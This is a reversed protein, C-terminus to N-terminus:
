ASTYNNETTLMDSSVTSSRPLPYESDAPPDILQRGGPRSPAVGAQAKMVPRHGCIGSVMIGAALKESTLAPWIPERETVHNVGATV